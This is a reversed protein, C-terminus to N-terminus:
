GGLSVEKTAANYIVDRPQLKLDPAYCENWDTIVVTCDEPFTGLLIILEKVTM